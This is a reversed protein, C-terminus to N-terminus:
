DKKYDPLKRGPTYPAKAKELKQQLTPLDSEILKKLKPLLKEFNTAAIKYNQKNTKTIECTVKEQIKLRERLSPAYPEGRMMLMFDGNIEQLIANIEKEIRIAELNWTPNANPTSTIAKKIFKIQRLAERSASTTNFMARQLKRAKQQYALIDKQDPVPLSAFGLPEVNFSQPKALPTIKGNELKDISVTFTGPIVLPGKPPQQWPPLDKRIKLKIPSVTPYRLDWAVRHIGARTPGTLRRVIHGASDKVTLLITPQDELKENRLTDWGPFPIPKGQKELKKEKKLRLQKGTHLSKKLYYTFVAGFPPNPASFHSDGQFGKSGFNLPKSQVYSLTKKVPFLQADQKLSQPSIHRLLSYDDIIYIGRGFTGAVLDNERRQIELDRVPIPPLGGKLRVWKKGSDLTFFVGFETGAFLLGPKKHDQALTWIIHRNPLNGSIVKWTKGRDTSKVVYPKFDGTKHNDLVAFVTDANHLCAQIDNVFSFAPVGPIKEIKRWHKGGDESVQILGDDTGIYLLNEKLPSEAIASINGYFSMAGHDWLADASWQTGMIKQEYRFIGRSLDPSVATWSDGRDDSRYLQQSAYYLRTHSHPSIILPAEWNWRQVDAGPPPTPRIEITEGNKKDYRLPNGTQWQVYIINPDKPDIACAYGDAGSTFYWDSNHIGHINLTRSPGLLSGNDQAGGHVNYYPLANDLAIRYFQTIPLNPAYRWTKGRDWTQYLGGDSGAVLYDPDNPDFALAHNDSHKFKEGVKKFTKGGDLTVHMWVDMQYVCDFRHPDAYIEQYYHPGTGNSIYNSRQEWSEGRDTSRYFGKEKGRAEITAYVVNPKITSVALGIRGMHNKPLGVTLRRWNKGNDISKYIGSEPGGGMFAAVSRRRQYASAYIIDPNGPEFAIDNVGTDKSIQLVPKWTTGGDMSKYVGREGGPNWLPGEAAVFIVNSDRPDVLIKSIHETKALGMNKWTKGGNLSKYIGDGYGVHRGSVNEGSGVWIVDHFNPDITVCGISFSPQSDFVPTWTTGNNVTKWVGGSGVAIYFINRNKPHVAIDSIRGSPMAPGILRWKLGSLTGANLKTKDGANDKLPKKTKGWAPLQFLLGVILTISILTCIATHRKM